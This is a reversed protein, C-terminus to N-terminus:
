MAILNTTRDQATKCLRYFTNIVGMMEEALPDGDHAQQQWINVFDRIQLFYYADGMVESIKALKLNIDNCTQNQDTM